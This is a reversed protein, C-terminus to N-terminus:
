VTAAYSYLEIASSCCYAVLKTDNGSLKQSHVTGAAPSPVFDGIPRANYVTHCACM